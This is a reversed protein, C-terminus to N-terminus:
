EVNKECEKANKYDLHQSTDLIFDLFLDFLCDLEKNKRIIERTEPSLKQLYETFYTNYRTILCSDLVRQTDQKVNDKLNTTM